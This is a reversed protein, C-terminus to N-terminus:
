DDDDISNMRLESRDRYTYMNTNSRRVWVNRGLDNEIANDGQDLTNQELVISDDIQKMKTITKQKIKNIKILKLPVIM